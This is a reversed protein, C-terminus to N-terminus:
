KVTITGTMSSHITCRYDFTGVAPFARSFKGGPAIDGSWQNSGSTNTSTHGVIDNNSWTVTGGALVEVNGPTFSTLTKGAAYDASPIDISVALTPTTGPTTTVVVPTPSTTGGGSSGCALAPLMTLALLVRFKM